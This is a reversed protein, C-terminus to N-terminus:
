FHHKAGKETLMYPTFLYIYEAQDKAEIWVLLLPSGIYVDKDRVKIWRQLISLDQNSQFMVNIAELFDSISTKCVTGELVKYERTQVLALCNKTKKVSVFFYISLALIVLAVVITFITETSITQSAFNDQTFPSLLLLVGVVLMAIAFIRCVRINKAFYAACYRSIGEHQQDTPNHYGQLYKFDDRKSGM